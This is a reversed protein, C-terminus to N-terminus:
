DTMILCKEGTYAKGRFVFGLTLHALAIVVHVAQSAVYPVLMTGGVHAGGGLAVDAAHLELVLANHLIVEPALM